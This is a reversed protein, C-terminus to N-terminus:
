CLRCKPLQTSYRKVRWISCSRQQCHAAPNGSVMWHRHSRNRGWDSPCPVHPYNVFDKGTTM